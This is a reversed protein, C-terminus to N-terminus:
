VKFDQVKFQMKFGEHAKRRGRKDIYGVMAAFGLCGLAILYQGIQLPVGRSIQNGTGRGTVFQIAGGATSISGATSMM